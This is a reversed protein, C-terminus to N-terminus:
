NNGTPHRKVRYNGSGWVAAGLRDIYRMVKGYTTNDIEENLKAKAMEAKAIEIDQSKLAANLRRFTDESLKQSDILATQAEVRLKDIEIFEAETIAKESLAKNLQFASAAQEAQNTVLAPRVLETQQEAMLKQTEAVTKLLDLASAGEFVNKMPAAVSGSPTSAGAGGRTASLIPNLGAARLDAVERQHATNSMNAQFARNKSAQAANAANADMGGGIQSGLSAGIYAGTPGGLFFGGAGGLAAGISGLMSM